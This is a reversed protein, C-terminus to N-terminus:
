LLTNKANTIECTLIEFFIQYIEFDIIESDIEQFDFKGRSSFHLDDHLM